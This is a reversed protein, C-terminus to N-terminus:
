QGKEIEFKVYIIFANLPKKLCIIKKIGLTYILNIDYIKTKQVLPILEENITNIIDSYESIHSFFIIKDKNISIIFFSCTINDTTIFDM